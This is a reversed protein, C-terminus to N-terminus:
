PRSNTISVPQDPRKNRVVLYAILTWLPVIISMMPQRVIGDPMAAALPVPVLTLTILAIEGARRWRSDEKLGLRRQKASIYAMAGLIATIGGVMNDSNVNPWHELQGLFSVAGMGMAVTSGIFSSKM